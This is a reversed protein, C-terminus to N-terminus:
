IDAISSDTRVFPYRLFSLANRLDIPSSIASGEARGAVGGCTRFRSAAPQSPRVRSSRAPDSSPPADQARQNAATPRGAEPGRYSTTSLWAWASSAATAPQPRTSPQRWRIPRCTSAPVRTMCPPSKTSVPLLKWATSVVAPRRLGSARAHRAKKPPSALCRAPQVSGQAKRRWPRSRQRCQAHPPGPSWHRPVHTEGAGATISRWSGLCPDAARRGYAVKAATRAAGASRASPATREARGYSGCATHYKAWVHRRM